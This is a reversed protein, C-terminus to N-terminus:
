SGAPPASGDQASSGKGDAKSDLNVGIGNMSSSNSVINGNHPYHNTAPSGDPVAASHSHGNVPLPPPSQPPPPLLGQQQMEALLKTALPHSGGQLAAAVLLGATAADPKLKLLAMARCVGLAAACDGRVGLLQLVASFGAPGLDYQARLASRLLWLAHGAQGAAALTCLLLTVTHATPPV